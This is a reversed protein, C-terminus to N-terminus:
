FHYIKSYKQSNYGFNQQLEGNKFCFGNNKPLKKGSFVGNSWM